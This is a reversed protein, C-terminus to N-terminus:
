RGLVSEACAAAALARWRTEEALDTLVLEEAIERAESCREAPTLTFDALTTNVQERACAALMLAVGWLISRM